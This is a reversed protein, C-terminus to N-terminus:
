EYMYEHIHIYTYTNTLGIMFSIKVFKKNIETNALGSNYKHLSIPYYIRRIKFKRSNVKITLTVGNKEKFLLLRNVQCIHPYM